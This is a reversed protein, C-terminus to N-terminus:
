TSSYNVFLGAKRMKEYNHALSRRLKRFNPDVPSSKIADGPRLNTFSAVAL